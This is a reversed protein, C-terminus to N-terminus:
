CHWIFYLTGLLMGSVLMPVLEFAMLLIVFLSIIFYLQLSGTFVETVPILWILAPLLLSIAFLLINKRQGDTTTM